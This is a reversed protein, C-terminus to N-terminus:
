FQSLIIRCKDIEDLYTQKRLRNLIAQIRFRPKRSIASVLNDHVHFMNEFHKSRLIDIPSQQLNKTSEYFYDKSM